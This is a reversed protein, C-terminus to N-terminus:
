NLRYSLMPKAKKKFSTENFGSKFKLQKNVPTIKIYKMSGGSTQLNDTAAHVIEINNKENEAVRDLFKASRSTEDTNLRTTVASSAVKKKYEQKKTYFSSFTQSLKSPMSLPSEDTRIREYLQPQFTCDELNKEENKKTEEVIKTNKKKLWVQTRDMVNLKPKSIPEEAPLCSFASQPRAKLSNLLSEPSVKITGTPLYTKEVNNEKQKVKIEFSQKTKVKEAIKRSNPNIEPTERLESLEKAQKELIKINQKAKYEAQKALLRIERASMTSLSSAKRLPTLDKLIDSCERSVEGTKLNVNVTVCVAPHDQHPNIDIAEIETM